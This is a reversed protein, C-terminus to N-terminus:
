DIVLDAAALLGQPVKIELAKATVLNIALDFQTPQEVPLTAPTAGKLIKDVFIATRRNLALPDAGYGMLGGVEVFAKANYTAPLRYQAALDVLRKRNEYFTPNPFQFVVDCHESGVEAFAREFADLSPVDIYRLQLNLNKAAEAAQNVMGATTQEPLGKQNWLVAVDSATPLLEKLLGFRKSILEPGLFTTGTINGGPHSLSKVLGDAIPDGVSGVVIPITTTAKKAAVAAPTAIAIIVDCKVGVLESARASLTEATGDGGRAEFEINQGEIYGLEALAQRIGTFQERTVPADPASPILMGVRAIKALNQGRAVFPAAAAGALGAIVSRRNM